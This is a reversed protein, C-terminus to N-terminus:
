FWAKQYYSWWRNHPSKEHVKDPMEIDKQATLKTCM